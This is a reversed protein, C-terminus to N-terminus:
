IERGSDTGSIAHEEFFYPGNNNERVNITHTILNGHETLHHLQYGSANLFFGSPRTMTLDLDLLMGTSLGTSVMTGRWRTHTPLHIHGCIVAQINSFGEILLGLEDVGDFGDADTELVGCKLPPHHMFIITPKRTEELLQQELWQLRSECMQGGPFGPKTSDVAILRVDHGEIVYHIFEPDTTPCFKDGFVSRLVSRDDHNGPIIYYPCQLKSLLRSAHQASELLGENTIDGTVLALDPEPNLMNIHEVCRVLYEDTPAIGYAKQGLVTIHPDSIQVILM